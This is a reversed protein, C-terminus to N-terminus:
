RTGDGAPPPPTPARYHLERTATTHDDLGKRDLFYTPKMRQQSFLKRAQDDYHPSDAHDSEGLPLATWSKPPRTLLVIQTSTQGGRGLFERTGEIPEFGIARPTAISNLSGGSAPWTRGTGRRGVRYVDGYPLDVRGHDQILQRAGKELRELIQADTVSAPPPFGARDALIVDPPFEKKWYYYAIAGVSDADCHRDWGTITRVMAALQRNDKVTRDARSWAERLMKQWSQAGYVQTNFAIEIAQDVTMKNTADLLELCMAARQHLPNDYRRDMGLFGNFLYPHDSWRDPTLPCDRTIFQPSVNCNQMYGQPPNELQVLDALAHFGQWETKSTNGPVPRKYDYGPARIPVRGNRLYYIDGDVTAVMVNQEMLQFMSLAQKMEDLNHATLTRYAQDALLVQDFYPLKLAYAKGEKHAVIPGHHTYLLEIPKERVTDGDLVRITEKRVTMERWAGDYRYQRPRDPNIEIEYCDAADPGGTTMAISCYRNHGLSPLPLGLIAMGSVSLEGGYLRAEYFRFSGYWGLHPDILAIPVGAATRKPGVLWENSGHYAIPDPEIGARMMDEGADGEPWGWIVYRSLAVCMWPEIRPAWDPVQEPHEAMLARIGAQYAEIIAR